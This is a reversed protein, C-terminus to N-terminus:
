LLSQPDADVFFEVGRPPERHLALVRVAQRITQLKQGKILIQFRYKGKVRELASPVPGSLQVEPHLYKKLEEAVQAAYLQVKDPDKGAFHLLIIRSFPPYNMLERFELDFDAFGEFDQRAAFDITDNGPNFSQIWVEGPTDGRGSRGAVQTILQFVKESARFDPIMLGLDANVIGVLTVNPFHLGKAIMQTGILIDLKGRRFDELMMEYDSMKKMSDSDMRGVRAFPFAGRTISELKETGTGSYRLDTSGCDPCELPAPLIRGCLHCCLTQDSKRYIFPMQHDRDPLSCDPCCPEYGCNPCNLSRSYGRRNLYLICQESRAVKHRVAEILQPSFIRNEGPQPPAELRRDIIFVEPPHQKKAQEKMVALVFKGNRANYLSEACPTASGLVVCANELHGRMVAVDRSVYRPAESQKYSSEHEEDVVILGLNNFPSFLASRAGIAINVRGGSIAEFAAFREADTLRSHLVALQDGFRARFRRVTQPTLSIEPVLVIANKGQELVQHIMQMYVETKGSNTVGHLLMVRRPEKGSLMQGFVDMVQLQEQNLQPPATRVTEVGTEEHYLACDPIVTERIIIKKDLLTKLSSESFDPILKLTGHELHDEVHLLAKVIASQGTRANFKADDLLRQAEAKDSLRYCKVAKRITKQKRVAAPLLTRIAQETSCCYYQAMWLGLEVLKEPLHGPGPCIAKIEKLQDIPFDSQDSIEVIYARKVTRGFPVTVALGPRIQACLMEPILYDFKRDLAIDTVVRAIKIM